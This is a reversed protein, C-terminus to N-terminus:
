LHLFVLQDLPIHNGYSQIMFVYQLMIQPLSHMGSEILLTLMLLLKKKKQRPRSQVICPCDLHLELLVVIDYWDHDDQYGGSSAVCSSRTTRIYRVSFYNTLNPSQSKGCIPSVLVVSMFPVISWQSVNWTTHARVSIVCFHDTGSVVPVSLSSMM